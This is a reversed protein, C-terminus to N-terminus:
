AAAEKGGAIRAQRPSFLGSCGGCRLMTEGSLRHHLPTINESGCTLMPCRYAELTHLPPAESAPHLIRVHKKFLDAVAEHVLSIQLRGTRDTLEQLADMHSRPILYHASITGALWQDELPHGGNGAEHKALLDEVAERVLDSRRIRTRRSLDALTDKASKSVRFVLSQLKVRLTSDAPSTLLVPATSM